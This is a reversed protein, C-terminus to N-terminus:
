SPPMCACVSVCLQTPWLMGRPPLCDGAGGEDGGGCVQFLIAFVTFTALWLFYIGMETQLVRRCAHIEVLANADLPEALPGITFMPQM